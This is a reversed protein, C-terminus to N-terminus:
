LPNGSGFKLVEDFEIAAALTESHTVMIVTGAYARLTSSLLNQSELDLHNDPEDLLLIDAALPGMTLIALAVKLREGGSLSEVPLLARERRLRIQALKDRYAQETWGPNLNQFNVLASSGVKLLTLHQDLLATHGKLQVQGSAANLKGMLIQLLLSKGSGNTGCIRWRQGAQVQLRIPLHRVFPMQLDDLQLVVGNRIAPKTLVFDLPAIQELKAEALRAREQETALSDQHKSQIKGATSESRAKMAGLLIKPAGGKAARASGQSQRKAQREKEEQMQQREKRLTQKAHKLEAQASAINVERQTEFDALGGGYSFLAESRLEFIHRYHRLLDQDHSITLSGGPHAFLWERLWTRGQQDLHNTPEDLLLFSNPSPALRMLALRTRQGGSLSTLRHEMCDAPLAFEILRKALIEKLQWQDGVIELDSPQGKGADLRMLAELIPLAGLYQAVSIDVEEDAAMQPLWCVPQHREIAGSLPTRVGALISMLLSKGTGNRGLLAYHAAELHMAINSFLPTHGPFAFSLGHASLVLNSMIVSEIEWNIHAFLALEVPRNM